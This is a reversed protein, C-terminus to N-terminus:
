DGTRDPLGALADWHVQKPDASIRSLQRPTLSWRDALEIMTWGKLRAAKAFEKM